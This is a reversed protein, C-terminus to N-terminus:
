LIELTDVLHSTDNLVEIIPELKDNFILKTISTNGIYIKHYMTMDFNFLGIIAAKIIGGHAVIVIKKGQHAQVIKLVSNKGRISANKLSVDGGCIPATIKDTKWLKFEQSFSAKIEKTTLGEWEGYNIERMDDFIIPDIKSKKCIIQATKKARTLPSTYLYDFNGDLREALYKAQSIGDECLSIDKSGQFKGLRNWETEGHRILYLTTHM